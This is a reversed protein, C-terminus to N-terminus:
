KVAQGLANYLVGNRLIFVQGNEIVKVSKAAVEVDDIATSPGQQMPTLYIDSPNITLIGKTCAGSNIGGFAIETISAIQEDTLELDALVVSKAGTSAFSKTKLNTSGAFFIVRYKLDGDSVDEGLADFDSTTLELTKYNSLTGAEFAFLQITNASNATWLFQNPTYTCKNNNPRAVLGECVLQAETETNSLVINAPNLFVSGADGCGGIAIEYIDNVHDALGTVDSPLTINKDNTNYFTHEIKQEVDNDDKYFYVVRLKQGSSSGGTANKLGTIKLNNYNALTGAEFSFIQMTCSYSATWAFTGGYACNNNGSRTVLGECVLNEAAFASVSMAVLIASAFLKLNKM